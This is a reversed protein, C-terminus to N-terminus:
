SGFEEDNLETEGNQTFVIASHPRVLAGCLRTEILYKYQNFDIDFDEFNTIQGGKTAGVHYDSLNVLIAGKGEMFTTSVIKSVSLRTAIAETSPIDGFLFRGNNDKLLKLDALLNPDIFMTPSGSGKYDPMAKIVAEILDEASSFSRKLTYFDDDSIIPRIKDEKIKSEDSLERGDGVLIARAIEEELMVRMESNMWAVVDFDTIDVIDDRDLKQKKYITQPTTERHLLGFVQELKEEGKIYGRARAEKETLDAFVTKIRSFPTKTIGAMITQYATNEDKYFVPQRTVSHAEPFLVDIETIGHELLSEKFSGLYQADEIIEEMDSHSLFEEKNKGEFINHHTMMDDGESYDGQEIEEEGIGSEKLGQKFAISILADLAKKQDENLTDLVEGVTKEKEESMQGSEEENEVVDSEAHILNGTYVTATEYDEGNDSHAMGFEIMAGPNAGSLVLSVEYIEGHVVNNNQRKVRKAGISMSSIDGHEIMSKAHKAEESDNFYGYGYVGDYLSHLLVHGLVNTPTDYDHNWVLPVKTGDNGKFADQRIIVGDSCLIDNKTVWGAFDYKRKGM